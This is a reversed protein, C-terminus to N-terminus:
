VPTPELRARFDASTTSGVLGDVAAPDQMIQVFAKLAELHSTSDAAALCLVLRVPDNQEHGFEVGDPVTMASMSTRAVSGDPQAHALAVGPTLVIYPGFATVVDIMRDVYEGTVSDSAVLPAAALRIAHQWDQPHAGLIVHDDTILQTLSTSM